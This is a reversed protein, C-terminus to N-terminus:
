GREKSKSKATEAAARLAAVRDVRVGGGAVAAAVGGGGVQGAIAALDASDVAAAARGAGRQV